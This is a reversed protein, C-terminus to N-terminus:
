YINSLYEPANLNKTDQKFAKQSQNMMATNKQIAAQNEAAQGEVQPFLFPRSLEIFHQKFVISPGTSLNKTDQEFAKQSQNMM